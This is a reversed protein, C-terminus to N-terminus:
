ASVFGVVSTVSLSTLRGIRAVPWRLVRTRRFAGGAGRGGWVPLIRPSDRRRRGWSWGVNSPSPPLSLVYGDDMVNRAKYFHAWKRPSLISFLTWGDAVTLLFFFTPPTAVKFSYNCLISSTKVVRSLKEEWSQLYPPGTTMRNKWKGREYKSKTGAITSAQLYRLQLASPSQDIVSSAEKLARSARMEGDAAIVKARAERSAEAEAAMARQLQEPLRADKSYPYPLHTPQNTSESITTPFPQM